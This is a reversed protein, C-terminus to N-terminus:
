DADEAGWKELVDPHSEHMFCWFGDDTFFDGYEGESMMENVYDRCRDCERLANFDDYVQVFYRHEEGKAIKKGCWFCTHEKRAKVRKDQLTTPM